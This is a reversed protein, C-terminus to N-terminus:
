KIIEYHINESALYKFAKNLQNIEGNIELLLQGFPMNKLRGLEGRLISYELNFYKTLNSLIPEFVKQGIYTIMLLHTSETKHFKYFTMVEELYKDVEEELVLKRTLAAKPHLLVDSIKGSEVIHGHDLVIVKDCLKRVVEIQHTVMVITLKLKQNINFLLDLINNTTYNDLASTAEDCLLLLPNNVLARAIGVRQKQGGSLQKPYKYKHSDLEVLDLVENVKNLIENKSMGGKIKLPLAVNELVNKSELLNFNQFIVGIQQRLVRLESSSMTLADNGNILISGSLPVELLNLCKLLTSKGAGSRGIIGFIEGVNVEFNIDFLIQQQRYSQILNNVKLM